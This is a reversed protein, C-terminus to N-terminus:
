FKSTDDCQVINGTADRGLAQGDYFATSGSVPITFFALFGDLQPEQTWARRTLRESFSSSINTM